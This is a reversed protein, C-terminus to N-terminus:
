NGERASDCGHKGDDSRDEGERGDLVGRGGRLERRLERLPLRLKGLGVLRDLLLRLRELREGRVLRDDELVVRLLERVGEAVVGEGVEGPGLELRVVHAVEEEVARGLVVHALVEGADALRDVRRDVPDGLARDRGDLVLRAAARAPGEGGGARDLAGVLNGVLLQEREGLLVEDLAVVIAVTLPREARGRVARVFLLRAARTSAGRRQGADREGQVCVCLALM